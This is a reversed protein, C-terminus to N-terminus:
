LPIHFLVCSILFIFMNTVNMLSCSACWLYIPLCPVISLTEYFKVIAIESIIMHLHYDFLHALLYYFRIMHCSFPTGLSLNRTCPIHCTKDALPKGPEFYIIIKWAM